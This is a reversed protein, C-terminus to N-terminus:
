IISLRFKFHVVNNHATKLHHQAQIYFSAGTINLRFKFYIAPRSSNTSSASGSNLIFWRITLQKYIINLRFTFLVATDHATQLHHQAQLRGQDLLEPSHQRLVDRRFVLGLHFVEEPQADCLSGSLLFDLFDFNTNIVKYRNKCHYREYTNVKKTLIGRSGM